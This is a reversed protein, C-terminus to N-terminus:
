IIESPLGKYASNSLSMRMFKNCLASFQELLFRSLKESLFSLQYLCGREQNIRTVFASTKQISASPLDTFTCPCASTEKWTRKRGPGFDFVDRMVNYKTLRILTASSLRTSVDCWM